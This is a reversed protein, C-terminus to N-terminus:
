MEVIATCIELDFIRRAGDADAQCVVVIEDNSPQTDLESAIFDASLVQAWAFITGCAEIATVLQEASATGGQNAAIIQEWVGWCEDPVVQAIATPELTPSPEPTHTPRPPATQTPSAEPTPTNAPVITATVASRFTELM